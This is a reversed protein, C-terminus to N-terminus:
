RFDACLPVYTDALLFFTGLALHDRAVSAKNELEVSGYKDLLRKWWGDEESADDSRKKVSQQATSGNPAHELGGTGEDPAGSAAAGATAAGSATAVSAAGYDSSAGRTKSKIATHEDASSSEGAGDMEDALALQAPSAASVKRGSMLSYSGQREPKPASTGSSFAVSKQSAPRSHQHSTTKKPSSLDSDPDQPQNESDQKVSSSNM